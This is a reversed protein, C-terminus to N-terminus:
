VAVWISYIGFAIIMLGALQRMFPKRMFATLQSALVGVALLNPLTGLGFALMLLAGQQVSGASVAWILVSYVLGCPLWGWLLGLLFAHGPTRVPLLRRGFPELRSWIVTGLKEVKLLLMWWGSLYLGLLIMFFGAIVLLAQQAIQIPMMSALMVGLGGMLAGALTYSVLRGANYALHFPFSQSLSQQQIQGPPSIGITLASVIGGCMGVCHVGGLLGVLFASLLSFEVTM